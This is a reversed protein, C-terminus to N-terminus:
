KDHKHPRKWMSIFLGVIIVFFIVVHVLEIHIGQLRAEPSRPLEFTAKKPIFTPIANNNM